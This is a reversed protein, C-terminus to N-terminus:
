AATEAALPPPAPSEEREISIVSPVREHLLLETALVQPEAHFYQQIPEDFLLNCVALLSMGQHHAMWSRVVEPHGKRYDIAEYFGCRGFWGQKVMERLNNVAAQPHIPLALFTSYPSVVHLDSDPRKMALEPIGFAHYGYDEGNEAASGSESIGWPIRRSRAVKQQIEVVAEMSDQMITHRHHTMWLAPMLYEFMTGTWSVLVRRGSFLTHRRGLHFWAEQPVDGKAIAVFSAIRSESALLDYSSPELRQTNVDFGVSMVKKRRHFLFGFDMETVLRDCEEAIAKLQATLEDTLRHELWARTQQVRNVLERAWFAEHEPVRALLGNAVQELVPLNEQWDPRQLHLDLEPSAEKVIDVIGSWLTEDSPAKTTFSLAAQKLTWLCAALNGSDVTSVFRPDLPGLTENSCWNFIHGKHKPLKRVSRLTNLTQDAFEPITLYGFHVAAIRADLLFGLNTPSLRPVSKGNELVNDPILWNTEESSWEQFYRWTRLATDRLFDVDTQALQRHGTRPARNLWASLFRAAFWMSLIPAAVPLAAPRVLWVLLAFGVAMLPSWALYSDVTSTRRKADEAEAATEWELLRKKTVFVRSISRWIADLSLMSQHLLFLLQLFAFIHGRFFTEFTDKIWAMFAPSGLPARLISFFLGAWVPTLLICISALTWYGPDGPLFLWGGLLLALTAPELLSRRLNDLIKWRSILSIPNAIIRRHFDPVRPLLWRMIQWDGRVWRHKRRSYASFHSPYDDILEIDSVLAARAYAGEILDHSLLANEPFREDLAAALADIDYIGKGTFIGEAFLDQYVDSVARTYIDFGTQGSYISALRSSSASQISIGIRPQLIGYGAVVMKTSPDIVARHLPHAIAGVLRQAADRPLQTDSDLTIVYRIGPLVSLDGVKVPFSDFGGRMLHNLDLLKGRKREWGMWRGESPNYIRYRHFLFFSTGGGTRPYRRNLDEILSICVEVLPDREEQQESADPSDTVLAFYLNPDRNALFRIELDLALQRVQKEKLLLTPVAVMTACDAPIGESFDLKPLFRPPALYSTLNNMFDVAAQTAPIILLILATLTPIVSQPWELLTVVILLTLVEIGILYFSQPWRLIFDLVRGSLPARYRIDQRLRQLGSDLLWYGVHRERESDKFAAALAVATEAVKTESADSNHALEAILTRYYDRSAYDMRSFVAAPDRALIADVVSVSEFLEKWQCDGVVRLSTLLVPLSVGSTEAAPAIRELLLMQLAPKLAWLEAMELVHLEQFARLFATLGDETVFDFGAGLYAQAVIYPLPLPRRESSGEIIATRYERCSPALTRIEKLATRVLRYNELLWRGNADDMKATKFSHRIGWKPM